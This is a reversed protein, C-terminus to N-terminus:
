KFEPNVLLALEPLLIYTTEPRVASAAKNMVARLGEALESATCNPMEDYYRLFNGWDSWVARGDLDAEGTFHADYRGLVIMHFTVADCVKPGLRTMISEIGDRRIWDHIDQVWKNCTGVLNSANSRRVKQDGVPAQQWKLQFLLLTHTSRDYAAFDIDTILKGNHKLEIGDRCSWRPQAFLAQLEKIWRPERNNVLSFWDHEYRARFENFLFAFPNMELGYSPLICSHENTRVIPAFAPTGKKFHVEM